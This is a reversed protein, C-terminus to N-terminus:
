KLFGTRQGESVHIKKFGRVMTLRGSYRGEPVETIQLSSLAELLESRGLAPAAKEPLRAGLQLVM